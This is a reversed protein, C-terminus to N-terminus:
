KGRGAPPSAGILNQDLDWLNVEGRPGGTVILTEDGSLAM